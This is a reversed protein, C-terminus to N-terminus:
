FKYTVAGTYARGPSPYDQWTVYDDANFLNDVAFTVTMNPSAQYDIKINTVQYSQLLKRAKSGTYLNGNADYLDNNWTSGVFAQSLGVKYLGNKYSVGVNGKHRTAYFTMDGVDLYTYNAFIDLHENVKRSLEAEIGAPRMNANSTKSNEGNIINNDTIMKFFVLSGRTDANFQKDVGLEYSWETTPKLDRNGQQKSTGFLDALSPAKFAKAINLKYTIDEDAAYALGLKPNFQGGYESHYDYRGGLDMLLKPQLRQSNQIYVAYTNADYDATSWLRDKATLNQYDVGWIVTQDGTVRINQQWMIGTTKDDRDITPAWIKSYDRPKSVNQYARLSSSVNGNVFKKELDFYYSSPKSYTWSEPATIKGYNTRDYSNYGSRFTIDDAFDLRLTYNSGDYDGHPAFGDTREYNATFIYAVDDSKGSQVLSTSSTGFSGYSTTLATADKDPKKTIINIAGGLSNNGYLTSVPGRVIEIREIVALPISNWDTASNYGYLMPRGDIMVLVKSSGGGGNLGRMSVSGPNGTGARGNSAVGPAFALLDTVNRAPLSQIMEQTIVTVSATVDKAPTEVRNATVIVEEVQFEPLDAAEAGTIGTILMGSCLGSVCIKKWLKAKKM